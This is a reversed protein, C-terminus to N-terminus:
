NITSYYYLSEPPLATLLLLLAVTLYSPSLFFCSSFLDSVRGIDTNVSNYPNIDGFIRLNERSSINLHSLYAFIEGELNAQEQGIRSHASNRISSPFLSDVTM